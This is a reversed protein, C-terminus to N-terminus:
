MSILENDFGKFILINSGRSISINDSPATKWRTINEAALSLPLILINL